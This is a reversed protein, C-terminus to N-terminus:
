VSRDRVSQRYERLIQKNLERIEKRFSVYEGIVHRLKHIVDELAIIDKETKQRTAKRHILINPIKYRLEDVPYSAVIEAIGTSRSGPSMNAEIFEQPTMDEFINLESSKITFSRPEYIIDKELDYKELVKDIEIVSRDRLEAFEPRSLDKVRWPYMSDVSYINGFHYNTIRFLREFEESLDELHEVYRDYRKAKARRQLREKRGNKFIKVLEANFIEFEDNFMRYMRISGKITQLIQHMQVFKDSIEKCEVYKDTDSYLIDNSEIFSIFSTLDTANMDFPELRFTDDLYSISKDLGCKKAIRALDYDISLKFDLLEDSDLDEFDELQSYDISFPKHMLTFLTMASDAIEQRIKEAPSVVLELQTTQAKAINDETMWEDRKFIFDEDVDFQLYRLKPKIEDLAEVAQKTRDVLERLYSADSRVDWKSILDQEILADVKEWMVEPELHLKDMVKAKPYSESINLGIFDELTMYHRIALMRPKIDFAGDAYVNDIELKGSDLLEFIKRNSYVRFVSLEEDNTDSILKLSEYSVRYVRCIQRQLTNFLRILEPRLIDISERADTYASM